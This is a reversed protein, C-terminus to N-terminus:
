LREAAVLDEYTERRRILRVDAGDVLVEAARPRHNYNSSMAFGYAGATHVALLDGRVTPPLYRDKAQYDGSECVPGVVDVLEDGESRLDAARRPYPVHTPWIFHFAEYLTPRLNDNMGADVIVFVHRDVDLVDEAFRVQRLWDALSDGSRSLPFAAVEGGSSREVMAFIKDGDAVSFGEVQSDGYVAIKVRLPRRWGESRGERLPRRWGESGAGDLQGRSGRRGAVRGPMGFPGFRTTAYGESRWRMATGEPPTVVGRRVTSPLYSRVFWPSTGGIILTGVALGAGWRFVTRRIATRRIATRRM